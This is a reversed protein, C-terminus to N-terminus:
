VAYDAGAHAFSRHRGPAAALRRAVVPDDAFGIAVDDARQLEFLRAKASEYSAMSRHWDLHDEALNLWIAAEARFTETWALRFSTCEVVFVDVDTEIADVLPVETNGAAVTRHGARGLMAALLLTTTTKGDTGTVAIMPRPGGPREQEWRHALEIESALPVGHRRAADIVPHWEPVGPSPSVLDVATVLPDLRAPATVLEVDLGAALEVLPAAADGSRDDAVVVDVGRRQLARVTSAGTVALGYVLARM